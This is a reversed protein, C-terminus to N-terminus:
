PRLHDPVTLGQEEYYRIAGSHLPASLGAMATELKIAKASPHIAHVTELNEFVAKVFRYVAEEAVSDDVVMLNAYEASPVAKTQGPYTNAPIEKRYYLGPYAQNFKALQEDSFSLIRVKDAGASAFLETVAVVPMGAGLNAASIRRDQLARASESYKALFELDIDKVDHGVAGLMLSAATRAGSKRGGINYKGSLTALDAITGTKVDKSLAVQHETNGWLSFLARLNKQPKGEFVGTGSSALAGVVGNTIGLEIEKKGILRVNETSGGSSIADISLDPVASSVIKALGVGVPYYTGGTGGTGMVLKTQAFSHGSLSLCAVLAAAYISKM